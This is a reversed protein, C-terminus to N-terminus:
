QDISWDRAHSPTKSYILYLGILLLLGAIYLSSKISEKM